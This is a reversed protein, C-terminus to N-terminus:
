KRRKKKVIWVIVAALVAAILAGIAMGGVDQKTQEWKSLPREVPYPVPVSDVKVSELRSRLDSVSDRLSEITREYEKKEESQLNIYIFRDRFITDGNENLRVTEKEKHVLSEKKSEKSKIEEKLSNILAMFKATDAEVKEYRVTEVPYPVMRTCSGLMLCGLILVTVTASLLLGWLATLIGKTFEKKM